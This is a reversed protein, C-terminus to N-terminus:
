RGRVGYRSEARCKRSRERYEPLPQTLAMAGGTGVDAEYIGQGNTSYAFRVALKGAYRKAQGLGETVPLDWAKAEVVALKQRRYVLVYDAIEGKARRGQGEIRGPTIVFERRVVSGDVVGWGAARLAPDVYDARTESENM